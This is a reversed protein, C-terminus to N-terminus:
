RNERGREVGEQYGTITRRVMLFIFFFFLVIAAIMGLFVTDVM